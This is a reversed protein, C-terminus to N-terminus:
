DAYSTEHTGWVRLINHLLERRVSDYDKKFDIFLWRVTENYKWKEGTDSSLRFRILLPDTVDFGVSKIGLLKKIRQSLV